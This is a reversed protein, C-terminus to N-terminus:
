RVSYVEATGSATTGTHVLSDGSAMSAVVRARGTAGVRGVCATNTRFVLLLSLAGGVLTHMGTGLPKAVPNFVAYWAAVLSSWVVISALPNAIRRLVYSQPWTSLCHLWDKSQTKGSADVVPAFGGPRRMELDLGFSSGETEEEVDDVAVEGRLEDKTAAVSLDDAVPIELALYADPRAGFLGSPAGAYIEGATTPMSATYAATSRRLPTRAPRLAAATWLVAVARLVSMAAVLAHAAASFFSLM